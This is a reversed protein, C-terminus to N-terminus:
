DSELLMVHDRLLVREYGHLRGSRSTIPHANRQLGVHEEVLVERLAMPLAHHAVQIQAQRCVRKHRAPLKCNAIRRDPCVQQEAFDEQRLHARWSLATPPMVHRLSQLDGKNKCCNSTLMMHYSTYGKVLFLDHPICIQRAAIGRLHIQLLPRRHCRVRLAHARPRRALGCHHLADRRVCAFSAAHPAPM